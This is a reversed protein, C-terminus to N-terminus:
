PTVAAHLKVIDSFGHQPAAALSIDCYRSRIHVDAAQRNLTALADKLGVGFKGIVGNANSLKEANENQTLHEYRFGRGFDRIHWAGRADQSIQIDPSASLIHEDLANAILERIAHHQGM